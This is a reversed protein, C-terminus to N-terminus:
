DVVAQRLPMSAFSVRAVKGCQLSILTTKRPTQSQQSLSSRSRMMKVQITAVPFHHGKGGDIPYLAAMTCLTMSAHMPFPKSIDFNQLWNFPEGCNRGCLLLFLLKQRLARPM